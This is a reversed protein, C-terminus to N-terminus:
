GWHGAEWRLRAARRPLWSARSADWIRCGKEWVGTFFGWPQGSFGSIRIFFRLCHGHTSNLGLTYGWVEAQGGKKPAALCSIRFGVASREFGRPQGSGDGLGWPSGSATSTVGEICSYVQSVWCCAGVETQGGKKPATLREVARFMDEDSRDDGCCFVFDPLQSSGRGTVHKMIREVVGGKTVGSPKVEVIQAGMVVEVPENALVGELHDLMEKAQACDFVKLAPPFISYFVSTVPQSAPRQRGHAPQLVTSLCTPQSHTLARHLPALGQAPHSCSCPTLLRGTAQPYSLGQKYPRAFSSHASYWLSCHLSGPM